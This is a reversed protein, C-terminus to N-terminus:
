NRFVSCTADSTSGDCEVASIHVLSHMRNCLISPDIRFRVLTWSIHSPKLCLSNRIINQNRVSQVECQVAVAIRNIYEKEPFQAAEAGIEVNM